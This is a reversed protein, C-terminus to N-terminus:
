RIEVTVTFTDAPAEDPEFPQHYILTLEVRGPAAAEFYFTETGGAGDALEGADAQYEAGSRQTLIAQELAVAEWIYGTTPNSPLRIALTQGTELLIEAGRDNEDLLVPEAATCGAALFVLVLAFMLTKLLRNMM